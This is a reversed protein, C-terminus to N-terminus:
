SEIAQKSDHSLRQVLQLFSNLTCDNHSALQARHKSRHLIILNRTYPYLCRIWAQLRQGRPKRVHNKTNLKQPIPNLLSNWCTEPDVCEKEWLAEEGGHKLSVRALVLHWHVNQTELKDHLVEIVRALYLKRGVFAHEYITKKHVSATPIILLHDDGLLFKADHINLCWNHM